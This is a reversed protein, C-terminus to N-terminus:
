YSCVFVDMIEYNDDLPGASYIYERQISIEGNLLLEKFFGKCDSINFAM